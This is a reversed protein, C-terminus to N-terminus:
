INGTQVEILVLDLLGPNYIQHSVGALAGISENSRLMQIQGNLWIQATGKLM